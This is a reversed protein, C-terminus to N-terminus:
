QFRISDRMDKFIPWVESWQEGPAIAVLTMVRDPRKQVVLAYASTPEFDGLLGSAASRIDFTIEYGQRGDITIPGEYGVQSTNLFGGSKAVKQCMQRPTMGDDNGWAVQAVPIAAKGFGTGLPRGSESFYVSQGATKRTIESQYWDAPYDITFGDGQFTAGLRNFGPLSPLGSSM